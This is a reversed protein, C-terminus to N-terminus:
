KKKDIDPIGSKEAKEAIVPIRDPYKLRIRDAEAKRKESCVLCSSLSSSPSHAFPWDLLLWTDSGGPRMESAKTEYRISAPEQLEAVQVHSSRPTFPSSHLSLPPFHFPSPRSSHVLSSLQTARSRSRTLARVFSALQKPSSVLLPLSFPLSPTLSQQQQPPSFPRILNLNLRPREEEESRKHEFAHWGAWGRGRVVCERAKHALKHTRVLTSNSSHASLQASSFPRASSFLLPLCLCRIKTTAKQGAKEAVPPQLCFLGYLLIACTEPNIIDLLTNPWKQHIIKSECKKREKRKEAERSERSRMGCRM